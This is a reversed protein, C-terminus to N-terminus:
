ITIQVKIPVVRDIRGNIPVHSYPKQGAFWKDQTSRSMGFGTLNESFTKKGYNQPFAESSLKQSFHPTPILAVSKPFSSM